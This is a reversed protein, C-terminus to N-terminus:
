RNLFLRFERKDKPMFQRHVPWAFAACMRPSLFTNKFKVPTKLFNNGNVKAVPTENYDNVPFPFLRRGQGSM